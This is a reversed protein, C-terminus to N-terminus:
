FFDDFDFSISSEREKEKGKGKDGKKRQEEGDAAVKKKSSLMRDAKPNRELKSEEGELRRKRELVSKSSSTEPQQKTPSSSSRLHNVLILPKENSLTKLHSGFSSSPAIRRHASPYPDIRRAPSPSPRLDPRNKLASISSPPINLPQRRDFVSSSSPTSLIEDVQSKTIKSELNFGSYHTLKWVAKDNGLKTARRVLDKITVVRPTQREPPYISPLEKKAGSGGGAAKYETNKSILVKRDAPSPPKNNPLRAAQSRPSLHAPYVPIQPSSPVSTPRLNVPESQRAVEHRHSDVKRGHHRHRRPFTYTESESETDTQTLSFSKIPVQRPKMPHRYRRPTLKEEKAEEKVVYESVTVKTTSPGCRADVTNKKVDPRRNLDEHEALLGKLTYYATSDKELVRKLEVVLDGMSLSKQTQRNVPESFRNARSEPRSSSVFTRSRFQNSSPRPPVISQKLGKEHRHPRHEYPRALSVHHLRYRPRPAPSHDRSFTSVHQHSTFSNSPRETPVDSSHGPSILPMTKGQTSNSSPKEPEDEEEKEEETATADENQIQRKQFVSHDEDATDADSPLETIIAGGVRPPSRAGFFFSATKPSVASNPAANNTFTPSTFLYETDTLFTPTLKTDIRNVVPPSDTNDEEKTPEIPLEPPSKSDLQNPSLTAQTFTFSPITPETEENVISEETREEATEVKEEKGIEEESEPVSLKTRTWSKPTALGEDDDAPSAPLPTTIPSVLNTPDTSITLKTDAEESDVLSRAPSPPTPTSCEQSVDSQDDNLPPPSSTGSVSSRADSSLITWKDDERPTSVTSEVERVTADQSM